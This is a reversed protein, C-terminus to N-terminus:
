VDIFIDDGTCKLNYAEKFLKSGNGHLDMIKSITEKSLNGANELWNRVSMGKHTVYYFQTDTFGGNKLLNVMDEPLYTVREEKLKFIEVFEKKLDKHPPIGECIIIRGGKKLLRYCEKIANKQAGETLIHHFVLRATIKHFSEDEYNTKEISGMKLFINKHNILEVQKLMEESIDIGHAEKVLPAANCLIKGTGCGVDLLHEDQKFDCIRILKEIIGEKNVWELNNYREARVKWFEGQNNLM